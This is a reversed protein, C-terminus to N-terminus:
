GKWYKIARHPRCKEAVYISELSDIAQSLSDNIVVYDYEFIYKLEKEFNHLRKQVVEQSETGRRMIRNKLEERSPPLVFIFVGNKFKKKIQMAGQTDIELILNTGQELAAKLERWPTGYYNGYVEAWEIFENRKVMDWFEEKKVFFYEKGDVEGPRPNRTTFSVSYHLDDFKKILAKCLTGKGAGSPGSIVLL